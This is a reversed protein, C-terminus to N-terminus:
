ERGPVMEGTLEEYINQAKEYLVKHEKYKKESAARIVAINFKALDKTTLHLRNQLLFEYHCLVRELNMNKADELMNLMKTKVKDVVAM